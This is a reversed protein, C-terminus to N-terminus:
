NSSRRRSGGKSQEAFRRLQQYAILANLGKSPEAEYPGCLMDAHCAMHNLRGADPPRLWRRALDM